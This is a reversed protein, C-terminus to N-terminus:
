SLQDLGSSGPGLCKGQWASLATKMIGGTPAQEHPVSLFCFPLCVQLFQCDPEASM